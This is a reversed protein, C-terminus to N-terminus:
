LAEPDPQRFRDRIRRMKRALRHGLPAHCVADANRWRWCRLNGAHQLTRLLHAVPAFIGQKRLPWFYPAGSRQIEPYVCSATYSTLRNSLKATLTNGSRAIMASNQPPTERGAANRAPSVVATEPNQIDMNTVGATACADRLPAITQALGDINFTLKGAPAEQAPIWDDASQCFCNIEEIAPCDGASKGAVHRKGACVLAHVCRM